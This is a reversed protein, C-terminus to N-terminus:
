SLNRFFQRKFGPGRLPTIVNRGDRTTRTLAAAHAIWLWAVNPNTIAVQEAHSDIFQNFQNMAVTGGREPIPLM